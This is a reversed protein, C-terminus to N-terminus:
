RLKDRQLKEWRIYTLVSVLVVPIGIALGVGIGIKATTDLGPSSGGDSEYEEDHHDSGSGYENYEGSEEPLTATVTFTKTAPMTASTITHIVTGNSMTAHHTRTTANVPISSTSTSTPSASSLTTSEITSETVYTSGSAKPPKIEGVDPFSKAVAEALPSWAYPFLQECFGRVESNYVHDKRRTLELATGEHLQLTSSEPREWVSSRASCSEGYKSTGECESSYDMISYLIHWLHYGCDARLGSLVM